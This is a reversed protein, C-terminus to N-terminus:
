NNINLFKNKFKLNIIYLGIKNIKMITNQIKFTLMCYENEIPINCEDGDKYTKPIIGFFKLFYEIIYCFMSTTPSDKSYTSPKLQKMDIINIIQHIKKLNEFDFNMKNELLKRVFDGLGVVITNDIFYQCINEWFIAKSKEAFNNDDKLLLFFIKYVFIIKDSPIINKNIFIELYSKNNLLNIVNLINKNIFFKKNIPKIIENDDNLRNLKKELKSKKNNYYKLITEQEYGKIKLYNIFNNKKIKSFTYQEVPLLYALIKNFLLNSIIEQNTFFQYTPLHFYIRLYPNGKKFISIIKKTEIDLQKKLCLDFNKEIDIINKNPHKNLINQNNELEKNQIQNNKNSLFRKNSNITNSDKQNNSNLSPEDKNLIKKLEINEFKVCTNKNYKKNKSTERNKALENM